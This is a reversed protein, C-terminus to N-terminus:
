IFISAQMEIDKNCLFAPPIHIERGGEGMGMSIYTDATIKLSLQAPYIRQKSVKQKINKKIQDMNM